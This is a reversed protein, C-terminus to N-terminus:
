PWRGEARFARSARKYHARCLNIAFSSRDCDTVLCGPDSDTAVPPWGSLEELHAQVWLQLTQTACVFDSRRGSTTTEDLQQPRSAAPPPVPHYPTRPSEQSSNKSGIEPSDTGGRVVRRVM